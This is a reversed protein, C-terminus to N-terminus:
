NGYGSMRRRNAAAMANALGQADTGNNMYMREVYLNSNYSRSQVERAPVVREGRHLLAPYNDFPVSWIGNAKMQLVGNHSGGGGGGAGGTLAAWINGRIGFEIPVTVTGIQSAIDEAANEPIDPETPVEVKKDGFWQEFSTMLDGPAGLISSESASPIGFAEAVSKVVNDTTLDIVRASAKHEAAVIDDVTFTAPGLGNGGSVNGNKDVTVGVMEGEKTINGNADVLTNNGIQDGGESPNLLTILGALWPAAALAAKGFGAGWSAGAAAGAEAAAGAGGALGMVGNVLNAIQLVGGTLKLGAWGAVIWKLADVISGKNEVIWNFGDVLANFVNTFNQVVSEPDIKGLDEFLASVNESLGQLMEQGEDSKTYEILRSLLGDLSTAVTTLAPALSALVETKLTDFDGQLKVVTDNLEAMKNISDESVVNQTDMATEYAERGMRFMPVLEKWSRGFIAQADADRQVTDEYSMMAEGMDWLVDEVDRYGTVVDGYKGAVKESTQVGYREFIALTNESDKVMNNSLRQQAAFWNEVSTEGATAAVKQAKQLQEVSIGLMTAMTATDDAWKASNMVNDWIAQGLDVAKGAATEMAGTITGIGSIVQELSIKKGIGNMSDALTGASQAAEQQSGDLTELAGSTELMATQANLMQTELRQYEVSAPNVGNAVMQRMATQLQGVMNKQTQLKSKLLDAKQSMYTEADGGAKYSAENVKLAADLTKMSAKAENMGRTFGSVDAGLKYNPM